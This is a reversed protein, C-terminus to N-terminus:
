NKNTQGEVRAVYAANLKESIGAYNEALDLVNKRTLRLLTLPSTAVVRATRKEDGLLAAEGFFDGAFLRGIHTAAGNEERSVAVSGQVLIYLSNGRQNQGIVEDGTLFAITQSQDALKVLVEYDLGSFLPVREILEAAGLGRDPNKIEPLRARAARLVDDIRAFAKAGIDGHHYSRQASNGASGLAAAQTLHGELSRFFEPFDCRAQTLFIRKRKIKEQYHDTVIAVDEAQLGSLAVLNSIVAESCLIGAIDRQIAQSLRARQVRALVPALANHERMWRLVTREVKQFPNSISDGDITIEDFEAGMWAERKRHLQARLDLFTYEMILGLAYLKDLEQAELDIAEIYAHRLHLGTDPHQVENRFYGSLTQEIEQAHEQTLLDAKALREVVSKSNQEADVLGRQLETIEEESLRDIGLRKILPRISPANILLTFLVVGVTLEVLTQRGGLSEPISLVIAIALGGKLGGWWMIHREGLSVHPLSFLHITTPVLSYVTAARALLVLLSAVIIGDFHSLMAGLDVSLGIMLFLLSNCVLSIVEWTEHVSRLADQPIRSVAYGGMTVAAAVAAMVGSVHLVHEAVVFSSYAIVLSMVVIALNSGRIRRMIEALGFGILSGVVIGGFFVWFFQTVANGIDSAVFNGAVAIGLLINFLVIATADNFLSEGEVLTNLRAPAGLEKFLAVVAVPDTASILAGFLLALILNLDLYLWIGLGIIATSIVLAPVALIFIPAIDSLLRRADLNLASEFILAPLFIFFVLDPTLHFEKLAGLGPVSGALSSLLMGLMVLFVTYPIPLNRTLSAAVMSIALLAMVVLVLESIPM